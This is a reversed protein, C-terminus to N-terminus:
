FDTVLRVIGWGLSLYLIAIGTWLMSLQILSPYLSSQGGVEIALWLAIICLAAMGAGAIGVAMLVRGFVRLPDKVWDLEM